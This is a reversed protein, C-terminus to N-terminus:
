LSSLADMDLNLTALDYSTSRLASTCDTFTRAGFEDKERSICEGYRRISDGINKKGSVVDTPSYYAIFSKYTARRTNPNTLGNIGISIGAHSDDTQVVMVYPTGPALTPLTKSDACSGLFASGVVRQESGFLTSLGHSSIELSATVSSPHVSPTHAGAFLQSGSPNPAGITRNYISVREIFSAVNDAPLAHHAAAITRHEADPASHEATTEGHKAATESHKAAPKPKTRHAVADFLEALFEPTTPRSCKLTQRVSVDAAGLEDCTSASNVGQGNCVMLCKGSCRPRRVGSHAAEAFSIPREMFSETVTLESQSGQSKLAITPCFLFSVIAM